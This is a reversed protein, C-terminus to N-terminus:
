FGPLCLMSYELIRRSGWLSFAKKLSSEPVIITLLGKNLGYKGQPPQNKQCKAPPSTNGQFVWTVYRDLFVVGSLKGSHSPRASEGRTCSPGQTVNSPLHPRLFFQIEAIGLLYTSQRCGSIDCTESPIINSIEAELYFKLNFTPFKLAQKM